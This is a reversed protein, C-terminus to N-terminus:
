GAGALTLVCGRCCLLDIVSPPLFKKWCWVFGAVHFQQTERQNKTAMILPHLLPQRRQLLYIQSESHVHM